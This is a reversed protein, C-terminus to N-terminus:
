RRDAESNKRTKMRTNVMCAQSLRYEMVLVESLSLTAGAQLQRFTIKLSTPSMKSLTQFIFPSRPYLHTLYLLPRSRSGRAIMTLLPLPKIQPHATHAPGAIFRM